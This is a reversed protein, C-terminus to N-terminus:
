EPVQDNQFTLRVTAGSTPNNWVEIEGHHIDMIIKILSLDLGKNGDIHENGTSFLKFLNKLAYSSFGKGQDIFACVTKEGDPEVKITILSNKGSHKVSNLLIKEFCFLILDKDGYLNTQSVEGEVSLGIKKAGMERVADKELSKFLEAFPFYEKKLPKKKTRLETIQLSVRAFSFLRQASVDINYVYRSLETTKLEDKLLGIFGMIGNLPTNIEHSIINLFENKAMDLTELERNAKGLDDNAKQLAKTREAVKEELMKNTMRLEDKGKKLELYTKVRALLEVANFPKTVYDQGGADFGSIISETDSQATLFIVPIEKLDEQKRMAECVKFGNMVPMNVDLLVLDYDSSSILTELAQKGNKAIEVTYDQKRLLNSLLSIDMQEDDVILIKQSKDTGM